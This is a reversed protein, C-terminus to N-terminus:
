LGIELLDFSFIIVGCFFHFEIELSYFTSPYFNIFFLIHNLFSLFFSSELGSPDAHLIKSWTTISPHGLELSFQIIDHLEIIL